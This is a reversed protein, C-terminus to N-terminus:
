QTVKGWPTKQPVEPVDVGPRHESAVRGPFAVETGAGLGGTPDRFVQVEQEAVVESMAKHLERGAEDQIAKSAEHIHQGVVDVTAGLLAAVEQDEIDAIDKAVQDSIAKCLEHELSKPYNGELKDRLVMLSAIIVNLSRPDTAGILVGPQTQLMRPGEDVEGRIDRGPEGAPGQCLLLWAVGDCHEPYFPQVAIDGQCSVKVQFDDGPLPKIKTAGESTLTYINIGV